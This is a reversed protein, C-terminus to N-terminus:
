IARPSRTASSSIVGARSLPVLDRVNGLHGPARKQRPFISSRWNARSPAGNAAPSSSSLDLAEEEFRLQHERGLSQVLDLAAEEWGGRSSDLKDFGPHAVPSTSLRRAGPSGRSDSDLGARDWDGIARELAAAAAYRTAQDNRYNSSLRRETDSLLLLTVGVAGLLTTVLLALIVAVGDDRTSANM